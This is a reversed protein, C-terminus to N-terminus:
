ICEDGFASLADGKRYTKNQENQFEYYFEGKPSFDFFASNPM